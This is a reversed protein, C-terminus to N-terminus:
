DVEWDEINKITLKEESDIYKVVKDIFDQLYDTSFVLSFQNETDTCVLEILDYRLMNCSKINFPLGKIVQTSHILKNNM